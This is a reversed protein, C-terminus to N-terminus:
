QLLKKTGDYYGEKALIDEMRAGIEKAGDETSVEGLMMKSGWEAVVETIGAWAPFRPRYEPVGAQWSAVMPEVFKFKAKIDPDEYVSMRGSVGGAEVYSKAIEESTAWQIFLWSAKKQEDTAQSAVALSFGGLAPLRGAPGSPEPAVGLCDGLKSTTPDTLSGYFASWETIMAVQGQALANVAEAHDYSVIGPPMYKMLDQRFKLGAQSEASLLNSKFEKNLLSGGFPWLFRMFSDASQTEGRLSQLAFAYKDGQTLKPAYVNMLEDWTAPPKDFGADKLMCSNYFLLGSYNDFPLGYTVGGWSGFANLLLPFFGDLKLNPDTITPDKAFNDIPEIWGNEAFEGIWVLDVLAMTLDGQSTFNLVSKERTNEYPVIEYNVKIGTKKEFEPLLKIIARYGPRDLFIGSIETGALPKAADELWDAMAASPACIAAAAIAVVSVGLKKLGTM